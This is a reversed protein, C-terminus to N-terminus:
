EDRWGKAVMVAEIARAIPEFEDDNWTMPIGDESQGWQQHRRLDRQLQQDGGYRMVWQAYARAWMENRSTMYKRVSPTEATNRRIKDMTPSRDAVDHWSNIAAQLPTPNPNDREGFGRGRGQTGEMGTVDSENLATYDLYHGFEHAITNGVHDTHNESSIRLQNLSHDPDERSSHYGALHFEGAAKVGIIENPKDPVPRMHLPPAGDLRHLRDVAQLVRGAREQAQAPLQDWDRVPAKVGTPMPTPQSDARPRGTLKEDVGGLRARVIRDGDDGDAVARRTGSASTLMIKGNPLVEYHTGSPKELGRRVEGEADRHLFSSRGTMQAEKRADALAARPSLGPDVDEGGRIRTLIAERKEPHTTELSQLYEMMNAGRVFDTSSGAGYLNGERMAENVQERRGRAAEEDDPLPANLDPRERREVRGIIERRERATLAQEFEHTLRSAESATYGRDEMEHRFAQADQPTLNNGGRVYSELASGTPEDLPDARATQQGPTEGRQRARNAEVIPRLREAEARAKNRSRITGQHDSSAREAEFLAEEDPDPAGRGGAEEIQRAVRDRAARQRESLPPFGDGAEGGTPPEPERAPM